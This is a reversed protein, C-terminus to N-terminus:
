GIMAKYTPFMTEALWRTMAPPIGQEMDYTRLFRRQKEPIVELGLARIVDARTAEGSHVNVALGSSIRLLRRAELGTAHFYRRRDSPLGFYFGNAVVNPRLEIGSGEVNEIVYPKGSAFLMLHTAAILRMHKAKNPTIKSYAQCPPSAHIFDFQCLLDYDLALANGQVFDFSYRSSMEPRIDVGVIESFRGSRWYGWSALGEGCFLDLMRM